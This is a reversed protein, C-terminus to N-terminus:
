DNPIPNFSQKKSKLKALDDTIWKTAASKWNIMKNKGVKWGISNYYHWFKTSELKSVKESLGKTIMHQYVDNESPQSFSSKSTARDRNNINDTKNLSDTKNITGKKATQRKAYNGKQPVPSESRNDKKPFLVEPITLHYDIRGPKSPDENNKKRKLYGNNELRSLAAYIAKRGDAFDETIRNGSFDYDLPKSCLYAFLGKDSMRLRPDLLLQNAVMTFDCKPKSKIVAM